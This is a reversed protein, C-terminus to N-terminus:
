LAEARKQKKFKKVVMDRKLKSILDVFLVAVTTGYRNSRALAQDGLEQFLARNPLGTLPDHTAQHELRAQTLKLESIDHAIVSINSTDGKDGARAHALERLKM